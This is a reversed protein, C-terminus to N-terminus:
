LLTSEWPPKQDTHTKTFCERPPASARDRIRQLVQRREDGRWYAGAAHLLKFHRIRGTSPVHPGRCLDSFRGDSYISIVEDDRIEALRELKLPDGAFRRAAEEREVEERVFSEDARVVERLEAEIRELDEPTFPRPVDFDYYFGEEIAPGFGIGAEPFLRRVATALVHACSHRLV